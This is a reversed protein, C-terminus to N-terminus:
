GLYQFCMYTFAVEIPFTLVKLYFCIGYVESPSLTMGPTALKRQALAVGTRNILYNINGVVIAAVFMGIFIFAAARISILAGLGGKMFYLIIAGFIWTWTAATGSAHKMADEMTEQPGAEVNSSVM